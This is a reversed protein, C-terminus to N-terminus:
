IDVETHPLSQPLASMFFAKAMSSDIQPIKDILDSFRVFLENDLSGRDNAVMSFRILNCLNFTDIGKQSKPYHLLYGNPTQKVEMHESYKDFHPHIIIYSNKSKPLRTYKKNSKFVNKEAKHQNCDKCSISLNEGSFMFNPYDCRSVIHEIDWTLGHNEPKYVKCYCCRNGQQPLYHQRLNNRLPKLKDKHNNWYDSSKGDFDNILNLETLTLTYPTM